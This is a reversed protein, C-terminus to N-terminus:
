KRKMYQMASQIHSMICHKVTRVIGILKMNRFQKESASYEVQTSCELIPSYLHYMVLEYNNGYYIFKIDLEGLILYQNRVVGSYSSRRSFLFLDFENQLESSDEM